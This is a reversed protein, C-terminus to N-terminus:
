YVDVDLMGIELDEPAEGLGCFHRERRSPTFELARAAERQTAGIPYFAAAGVGQGSFWSLTAGLVPAVQDRDLPTFLGVVDGFGEGTVPDRFLKVIAWGDPQPLTGCELWTYRYRPSRETRWALTADDRPYFTEPGPAFLRAPPREVVRAAAADSGSTPRTWDVLTKWTTWGLRRGMADRARANGVVALREAGRARAEDLAAAALPAILGQGQHDEAIMIDLSMARPVPADTVVHVGYAAVMRDGAWGTMLLPAHPCDFFQWDYYLADVKRAYLSNSLACFAQADASDRRALRYVVDISV